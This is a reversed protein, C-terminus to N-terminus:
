RRKSSHSSSQKSKNRNKMSNHVAETKPQHSESEVPKLKPKNEEESM